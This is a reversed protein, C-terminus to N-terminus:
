SSLTIRQNMGEENHIRSYIEVLDDAQKAWDAVIDKHKLITGRNHKMSDSMQEVFTKLGSVLGLPNRSLMQFYNQFVKGDPGVQLFSVTDALASVDAYYPRWDRILGIANNPDIDFGYRLAGRAVGTLDNAIIAYVYDNGYKFNHKDLYANLRNMILPLKPFADAHMEDLPLKVTVNSRRALELLGMLKPQDELPIKPNIFTANTSVKVNFGADAFRRTINVFDPHLSPEGGTIHLRGKYGGFVKDLQNKIEEVTNEPMLGPYDIRDLRDRGALCGKCRGGCLYTTMVGVSPYPYVDVKAKENLVRTSDIEVVMVELIDSKLKNTGNGNQIRGTRKLSQIFKLFYDIPFINGM